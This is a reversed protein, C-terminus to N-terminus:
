FVCACVCACREPYWPERSCSLQVSNCVFSLVDFQCDISQIFCDKKNIINVTTQIKWASLPVSKKKLSHNFAIKYSIKFCTLEIEM